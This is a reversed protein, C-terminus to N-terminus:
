RGARQWYGVAQENMGAATYHQALLEPRTEALEPCRAAFVQAIREHYQQRTRKLLSQYAAEQILAHKFTYIAQPPQGQQSLLAAAVLRGLEQLLTVEDVHAVASPLEYSFQRGITAGLQAIGKATGLRDLRAMLADHLTAPITCATGPVTLPYLASHQYYPSGRCELRTHPESAVHEKLSQILRSKGIGAEGSIVIVQGHGTKVQAWRELLRAVEAERGVLPTLGRAAAVELRTQTENEGRVRYLSVPSAVEKLRSAGLDACSFYGEVLRFTAASIVVMDPAAMDQIRAAVNPPEGLALRAQGAGSGLEGVVVLGTHIGIRVALRLGKDQVLRTNLLGM